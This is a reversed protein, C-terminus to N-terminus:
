GGNERFGEGYGSLYGPSDSDTYPPTLLKVVGHEWDALRSLASDLALEVKEPSAWPCFAAWSQAVSDIREGDGLASGDARYARLYWRGNFCADAARGVQESLTQYHGARRDDLRELLAAMCLACCSVFWGLWVSEGGVRDLGDNWDGSGMFPLGHVGFGRAEVLALARLAHELVSVREGSVEPTEYRDHEEARLPESCVFPAEARCLSLDGTAETYECLAWVLWLLDDSCRTRVGKDGAPHRHWWHMVDGEAYQHACCDLIQARCLGPEILLLNACDQLQDRFGVAGGSQYISSRALIRCAYCQYVGWTNMYHSLAADACDLRFRGLRDQWRSRTERLMAPEFSRLSQADTGLLLLTTDEARVSLRLAAPCFESEMTWPSSALIYLETGPLWSGKDCLRILGDQMELRLGAADETGLRPQLEWGLTLGGGGRIQLVRLDHEMPILLTTEVKRGGIEKRWVAAGPAYTVECPSNGDAFLSVAEGGVLAYVAETGFTARIDTPPTLLRMERANQFWLGAPGFDATFASLSGNTLIHQWIRPPLKEATYVFSDGNFRYPPISGSRQPAPLAPSMAPPLRKKEGAFFVARGRLTEEATMPVCLVGGRAGLLAELGYAALRNEIERLAPHLYEGQEDTLVVLEAELGCCKLLCFARLLRDREVADARCCLIPYDGSIGWRWLASKPEAGCLRNEWLPLVLDMAEDLEAASMGLRLAAARVM